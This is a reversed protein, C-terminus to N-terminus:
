FISSIKDYLNAKVLGGLSYVTTAVVAGIGAAILAYEIATAGGEDSVFRNLLAVAASRPAEAGTPGRPRAEPM